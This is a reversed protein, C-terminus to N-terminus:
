GCVHSKGKGAVIIITTTNLYCSKCVMPTNTELGFGYPYPSVYTDKQTELLKQPLNLLIERAALSFNYSENSSFIGPNVLSTTFLELTWEQM